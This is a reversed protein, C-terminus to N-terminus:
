AIPRNPRSVTGTAAPIPAHIAAACARQAGLGLPTELTRRRTPSCKLSSSNRQAGGHRRALDICQGGTGRALM